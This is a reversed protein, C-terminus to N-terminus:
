DGGFDEGSGVAAEAVADGSGGAFEAADDGDEYDVGDVGAVV